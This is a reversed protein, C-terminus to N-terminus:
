FREMTQAYMREAMRAAIQEIARRESFRNQLPDSTVRFSAKEEMDADRWITQGTARDVLKVDMRVKLWRRNTVAYTTTEGKVEEETTKYAHPTTRIEYIKGVLVASAEHEQVLPIRTHSAFEERIIRTFWGEFGPDSSSSEMLPIALSQIDLGLPKETGRLRYGCGASVVVWSFFLLGLLVVACTRAKIRETRM